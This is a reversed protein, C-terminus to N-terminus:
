ATLKIKNMNSLSRQAVVDVVAAAAFRYRFRFSKGLFESNLQMIQSHFSIQSTVGSRQM